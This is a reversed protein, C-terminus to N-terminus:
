LSGLNAVRTLFCRECFLPKGHDLAADPRRQGPSSAIYFDSGPICRRVVGCVLCRCRRGSRDETAHTLIPLDQLPPTRGDNM